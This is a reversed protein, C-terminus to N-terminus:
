HILWNIGTKIKIGKKCLYKNNANKNQQGKCRKIWTYKIKINYVYLQHCLTKITIIIMGKIDTSMYMNPM